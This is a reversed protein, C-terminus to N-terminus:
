TQPVQHAEPEPILNLLATNQLAFIIENSECQWLSSNNPSM